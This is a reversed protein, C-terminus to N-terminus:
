RPFHFFVNEFCIPTSVFVLFYLIGSFYISFCFFVSFFFSLSFLIPRLSSVLIQLFITCSLIARSELYLHYRSFTIAFYFRPEVRVMHYEMHKRLVDM